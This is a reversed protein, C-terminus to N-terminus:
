GGGRKPPAYSRKALDDLLEALRPLCADRDFRGRALERAAEGIPRHAGPDALVGLAIRAAAEPDGPPVLLGTRGDDIVERIPESDWALVVAGSAMAEVTARSLVYPRSPDVHLDSASLLGAVIDPAAEGLMWFREPDVVPERGMTIAAFDAGFHEVDLARTVTGGGVVVCIVDPRERLLRNALSVFRDFGRLRDPTTAVFSVVKAGEPVPRGAISRGRAGWRRSEGRFRRLDVGEHQVVFDGRYESPYLSRQWETSTWPVVGNELDLLDMANAAVRWNVYDPPLRDVLEDALDLRRPHYYYDFLNVVPARPAFAPVFLTSGLGSSRGLVVDVPRPRRAEIVEWAGYAYCLGRELSRTWSVSRERAVGGVDFRVVELGRGTSGPWRDQPEVGHCFFWCRYGRTRVLWDAVAGLRGPFRPEVCLLCLPDQAM